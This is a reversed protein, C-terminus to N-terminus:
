VHCVDAKHKTLVAVLHPKYFCPGRGQTTDRGERAGECCSSNQEEARPAAMGDTIVFLGRDTGPMALHESLVRSFGSGWVPCPGRESTPCYICM